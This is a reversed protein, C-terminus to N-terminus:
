KVMDIKSFVENSCDIIDRMDDIEQQDFETWMEGYDYLVDEISPQIDQKAMSCDCAWLLLCISVLLPLAIKEVFLM